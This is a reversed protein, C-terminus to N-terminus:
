IKVKFVVFGPCPGLDDGAGRGFYESFGGCSGLSKGNPEQPDGGNLGM